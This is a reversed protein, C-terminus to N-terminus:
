VPEDDDNTKIPMFVADVDDHDDNPVLFFNMKNM